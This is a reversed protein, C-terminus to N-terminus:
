KKEHVEAITDMAKDLYDDLNNFDLCFEHITSPLMADDEGAARIEVSSNSTTRTGTIDIEM